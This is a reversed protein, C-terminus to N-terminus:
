GGGATHPPRRASSASPAQGSFEASPLSVAIATIDDVTENYSSKAWQQRSEACLDELADVGVGDRLLKSAADENSCFEFLGDTGLVLLVDVGPRLRYAAVEPEATVGCDSSSTAGLCRTLALAPRDQDPRFVRVAGSNRHLKRIDGGHERVREAEEPDDPRHDRTLATVSLSSPEDERHSALLVRSDGVHAVFLWTESQNNGGSDAAQDASPGVINLVLALAATTGSTETDFPQQVLARQTQRFAQRLTDEPRMLLTHQGFLSEPLSGRAFAACHHGAPGHGDFVGYLAIHGDHALTHRAVLFDDQNPVSGDLRRGRSCVCAVGRNWAREVADDPFRSVMKPAFDEQVGHEHQGQVVFEWSREMGVSDMTMGSAGAIVSNGCSPTPVEAAHLGEPIREPAPPAKDTDHLTVNDAASPLLSRDVRAAAVINDEVGVQLGRQSVSRQGVAGRSHGDEAEVCVNPSPDRAPIPPVPEGRSAASLTRELLHVRATERKLQRQSQQASLQLGECRKHEKDRETRAEETQRQLLVVLNRAKCLKDQLKSNESRLEDNERRLVRVEENTASGNGNAGGERCNRRSAADSARDAQTPSNSRRRQPSSHGVPDRFDRPSQQSGYSECRGGASASPARAAQPRPRAAGAVGAPEKRQNRAPPATVRPKSPIRASVSGGGGNASDAALETPAADLDRRPSQGWGAADEGRSLPAGSSGVELVRAPSAERSDYALASREAGGQSPTHTSVAQRRVPTTSSRPLINAATTPEGGFHVNRPESGSAAAECVPLSHWSPVSCLNAQTVFQPQSMTLAGQGLQPAQLPTSRTVAVPPNVALAAPGGATGPTPTVFRRVAPSTPRFCAAQDPAQSTLPPAAGSLIPGHGQPFPSGAVFPYGQYHAKGLPLSSRPQGPVLMLASDVGGARGVV